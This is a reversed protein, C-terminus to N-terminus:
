GRTGLDYSDSDKYRFDLSPITVVEGKPLRTVFFAEPLRPNFSLYHVFITCHHISFISEIAWGMCPGPSPPVWM